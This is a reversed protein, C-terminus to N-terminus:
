VQQLATIQARLASVITSVNEGTRDGYINWVEIQAQLTAIQGAIVVARLDDINM